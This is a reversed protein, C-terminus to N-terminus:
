ATPTQPQTAKFRTPKPGFKLLLAPLFLLDGLLATSITLIGM